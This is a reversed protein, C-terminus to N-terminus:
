HENKKQKEREMKEARERETKEAKKGFGAIKKSQKVPKEAASL